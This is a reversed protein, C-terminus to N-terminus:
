SDYQFVAERLLLAFTHLLGAVLTACDDPAEDLGPIGACTLCVLCHTLRM